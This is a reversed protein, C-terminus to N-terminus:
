SYLGEKYSPYKLTVGLLKKMLDNKVRQNSVMTYAGRQIAEQSTISGPMPLNERECVFAAVDRALAPCDDAVCLVEPLDDVEICRVIVRALDEVHIRNTWLSGNDIMRYGGGRISFLIGRDPGYIAPLRLATFRMPRNTRAFARYVEESRWRAEGQANWPQAPAAETIEQGDRGGFVGTTSLYIIKVLSSSAFVAVINEIGATPAPSQLPPVSDVLTTIRPYTQHLSELGQRDNVAVRYAIWGRKEWEVCQERSRSTIVFSGAPLKEAVRRLTYGGGLLLIHPESVVAM